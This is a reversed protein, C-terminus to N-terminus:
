PQMVLNALTNASDTSFIGMLTNTNSGVTETGLLTGDYYVAVSTASTKVAKLTKGAGYTVDYYNVRHFYGTAAVLELLYVKGNSPSVFVVIYNAPTSLNDLGLVLGAQTNGPVTADVQFTGTSAGFNIAGFLAADLLPKLSFDDGIVSDGAGDAM